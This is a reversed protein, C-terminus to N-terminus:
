TGVTLVDLLRTGGSAPQDAAVPQPSFPDARGSLMAGQVQQATPLPKLGTTRPTLPPLSIASRLQSQLALSPAGVVASPPISSQDGYSSLGIALVLGGIGQM